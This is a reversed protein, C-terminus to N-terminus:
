SVPVIRVNWWPPLPEFSIAMSKVLEIPVGHINRQFAKVPDCVLWIIEVNYGFTEALRYFPAIEYVRINTNDVIIHTVGDYLYALFQRLCWNHAHPLQEKDFGYSGDERLFWSDASVTKGLTNNCIWTSKGSGPIGRMITVKKM